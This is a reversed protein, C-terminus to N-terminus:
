WQKRKRASSHKKTDKDSGCTSLGTNLFNFHTFTSLEQIDTSCFNNCIKLDGVQNEGSLHECGMM